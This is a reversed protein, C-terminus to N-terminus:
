DMPISQNLWAGKLLEAFQKDKKFKEIVKAMKKRREETGSNDMDTLADLRFYEEIQEDTLEKIKDLDGKM